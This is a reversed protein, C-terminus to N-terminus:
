RAQLTRLRFRGKGAHKAEYMAMDAEQLLHECASALGRCTVAGLSASVSVVVGVSLPFPVAMTAVLRAALKKTNETAEKATDEVLVAFEDGGLRAVLARDTVGDRLRGAAAVLLEDGASHGYVDNVRKFGDLDLVFLAITQDPSRDPGLAQELRKALLARNGLGTLPDHFAQHRLKAALRDRETISQHLAEVRSDLEELLRVNEAFAALQRIVVLGTATVVSIVVVWVRTSPHLGAIGWCFLAYTLGIAGYPVLSYHRRRTRVSTSALARRQQLRASVTLLSSAIVNLGFIWSTLGLEILSTVTAATM